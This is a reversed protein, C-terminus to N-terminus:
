GEPFFARRVNEVAHGDGLPLPVQAARKVPKAREYNRVPVKSSKPKSARAISRKAAKAM